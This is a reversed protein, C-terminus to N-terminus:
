LHLFFLFLLPPPWLRAVADSAPDKGEGSVEIAATVM